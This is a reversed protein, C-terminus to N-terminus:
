PLDLSIVSQQHVGGSIRSMVDKSQVHHGFHVTAYRALPYGEIVQNNMQNDLCLLVALCAQAMITHAAELSIHHYQSADVNSMGLHDSTLFEKVSFYSFQVVRSDVDGTVTVLSSCVSLVAQEQDEWRLDEDLIPVGRTESFKITYAHLM